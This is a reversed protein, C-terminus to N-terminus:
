HYGCHNQGLTKGELTRRERQFEGFWFYILSISPAYLLNQLILFSDSINIRNFDDFYIVLRLDVHVLEITTITWVMIYIM